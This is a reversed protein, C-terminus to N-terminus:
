MYYYDYLYVNKKFATVVTADNLGEPTFIVFIGATMIAVFEPKDLLVPGTLAIKENM